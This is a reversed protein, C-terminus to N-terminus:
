GVAIVAEGGKETTNYFKLSDKAPGSVVKGAADFTSRSVSCCRFHDNGPLPDIRRGMHTCKNRFAHIKGKGDRFVLLRNKLGRGEIRLAGGKNALEPARSLDVIVRGGEVKWCGQDAPEKTECIGFIMKLLGM